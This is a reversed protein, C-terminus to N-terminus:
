QNKEEKINKLYLDIGECFVQCYKALTELLEEAEEPSMSEKIRESSNNVDDLRKKAILVKEKLEESMISGKREDQIKQLNLWFEKSTRFFKAFDGAIEGTINQRGSLIDVVKSVSWNKGLKEVLDEVSLGLPILFEENLINAVNKEAYKSKLLHKPMLKLENM